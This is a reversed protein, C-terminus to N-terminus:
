RVEEIVGDFSEHWPNSLWVTMNTFATAGKNIKSKIFDDDM